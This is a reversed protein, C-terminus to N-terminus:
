IKRITKLLDYLPLADVWGRIHLRLFKLYSLPIIYSAWSRGDFIILGDKTTTTVDAQRTLGTTSDCFIINDADTDFDEMEDIEMWVNKNYYYAVSGFKVNSDFITDLLIYEIYIENDASGCDDDSFCKSDCSKQYSIVVKNSTNVTVIWDSYKTFSVGWNRKVILNSDIYTNYGKKSEPVNIGDNSHDGGCAQFFGILYILALFYIHKKM